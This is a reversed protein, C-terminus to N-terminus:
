FYKFMVSKLKLYIFIFGLLLIIIGFYGGQWSFIENYGGVEYLAHLYDHILIGLGFFFLAVSISSLKIYHKLKELLRM